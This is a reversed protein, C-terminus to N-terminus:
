QQRRTHDTSVEFFRSRYRQEAAELEDLAAFYEETSCTVEGDFLETLMSHRWRMFVVQHQIRAWALDAPSGDKTIVTM